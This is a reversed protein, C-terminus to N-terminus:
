SLDMPDAAPAMRANAHAQLFEASPKDGKFARESWRDSAFWPRKWVVPAGLVQGRLAESIRYLYRKVKFPPNIESVSCKPCEHVLLKDAITNLLDLVANSYKTHTDHMQSNTGKIVAAVYNLCWPDYASESSPGSMQSWSKGTPSTETDIYYNAALWAGNHSGNVNYGIHKAIKKKKPGSGDSPMVDVSKGMTMLNTLKTSKALAANGPILHHAAVTYGFQGEPIQATAAVVVKFGGRGTDRQPARYAPEDPPHPGAVTASAGHSGAQLNDGLVGGNNKQTETAADSDDKPINEEEVESAGEVAPMGFPCEAAADGAVVMGVFVSELMQTM